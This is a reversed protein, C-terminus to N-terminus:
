VGIGFPPIGEIAETGDVCGGPGRERIHWDIVFPCPPPTVNVRDGGAEARFAALHAFDGRMVSCVVVVTLGAVPVIAAERVWVDDMEGM